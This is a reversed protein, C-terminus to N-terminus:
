PRHRDYRGDLLEAIEHLTWVHDAAAAAMARTRPYPKALTIYGHVRDVVRVVRKRESVAVLEREGADRVRHGSPGRAKIEQQESTRSM